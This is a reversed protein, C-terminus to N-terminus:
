FHPQNFLNTFFGTIKKQAWQRIGEAILLLEFLAGAICIFLTWTLIVEWASM